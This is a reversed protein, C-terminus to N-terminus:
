QNGVSDDLAELEDEDDPSTIHSALNSPLLVFSTAQYFPLLWLKATM